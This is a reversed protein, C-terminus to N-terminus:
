GVSMGQLERPVHMNKAPSVELICAYQVAMAGGLLAGIESDNNGSSFM